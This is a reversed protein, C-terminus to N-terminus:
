ETKSGATFKLVGGWPGRFIFKAYRLTPLADVESSRYGGAARFAPLPILLPVRSIEIKIKTGYFNNIRRGRTGRPGNTAPSRIKKARM